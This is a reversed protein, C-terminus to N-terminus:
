VLKYPKNGFLETTDGVHLNSSAAEHEDVIVEDLARPARRAVLPMGNMRAFPEWDVGEIQKIGWTSKPDPMVNRGVPVTSVVGDIELLKQAYAINVSMNSTTAEMGGPRTFLIEAKWNATRKAIDETMGKALGTFLVILIVGIAVGVTSILTRFPRARLNALVLELM